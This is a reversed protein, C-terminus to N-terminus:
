RDKGLYPRRVNPVCVQFAVGLLLYCEYRSRLEPLMLPVREDDDLLASYPNLDLPARHCSLSYSANSPGPKWGEEASASM